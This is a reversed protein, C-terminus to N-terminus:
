RPASAEEIIHYMNTCHANKKKWHTVVSMKAIYSVDVTIRSGSVGSVGLQVKRAAHLLM